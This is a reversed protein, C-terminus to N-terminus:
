SSIMDSIRRANIARSLYEGAGGSAKDAVHLESTASTVVVEKGHMPRM